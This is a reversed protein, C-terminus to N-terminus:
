APIKIIKRGLSYYCGGEIPKGEPSVLQLFPIGGTPNLSAISCKNGTDGELQYFEWYLRVTSVSDPFEAIWTYDSENSPPGGRIIIPQSRMDWYKYTLCSPVEPCLMGRTDLGSVLKEEDHLVALGLFVTVSRTADNVLPQFKWHFQAKRKGKIQFFQADALRTEFRIDRDPDQSLGQGLIKQRIHDYKQSRETYTNKDILENGHEFCVDFFAAKLEVMKPNSQAAAKWESEFDGSADFLSKIAIAGKAKIHKTYDAPKNCVLGSKFTYHYGTENSGEVRLLNSSKNTGNLETETKEFYSKECASFAIVCTVVALGLQFNKM